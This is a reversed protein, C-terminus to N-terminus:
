TAVRTLCEIAAVEFTNALHRGQRSSVTAYAASEQKITHYRSTQHNIVEHGVAVVVVYAVTHLECLILKLPFIINGYFNFRNVAIYISVQFSELHEFSFYFSFKSVTVSVISAM